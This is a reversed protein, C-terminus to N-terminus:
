PMFAGGSVDIVTGTLFSADDSCLFAVVNAIDPPIALRGLATRAIGQEFYDKNNIAVALTMETMTRSPAVSNVTIGYRGVEDAMVRAFGNMGSKSAAYHSKGVGTRGRSAESSINVIRGWQRAKMLPIAGRSMLFTGTLNVRLTREWDALSMEEVARRAGSIGANNVLIDLGGFRQRMEAYIQAVSQEDMVDLPLAVARGGSENIEQAASHAAEQKIDAIVVTLGDRALRQAIARGLGHAAGTVLASRGNRQLKETDTM